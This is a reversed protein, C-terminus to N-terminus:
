RHICLSSVCVLKNIIVMVNDKRMFHNLVVKHDWHKHLQTCWGGKQCKTWAICCSKWMPIYFGLFSFNTKTM